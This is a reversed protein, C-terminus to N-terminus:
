AAEDRYAYGVMYSTEYQRWNGTGPPMTTALSRRLAPYCRWSEGGIEIVAGEAIDAMNVLRVGSMHGIPRFSTDGIIPIPAYLNIPVLPQVGAFPSRGRALYGDNIADGFGGIVNDQTFGTLATSNTPARFSRFNTSSDAHALRVGGSVNAASVTQRANGLYRVGGAEPIYSHTAVTAAIPGQTGSIVEGGTWDGIKEVYGIYLHRYYDAGYKVVIAIYPEPTLGGIFSVATPNLAAGNIIPARAFLSSTVSPTNVAEVVVDKSTGAESARVRWPVSGTFPASIIPQDPSSTDATWGLTDAFTALLAPISLVSAIAHTSYM